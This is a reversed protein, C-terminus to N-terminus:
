CSEGCCGAGVLVGAPIQQIFTSVPATSPVSIPLHSAWLVAVVTKQTRGRGKQPNECQGHIRVSRAKLRGRAVGGTCLFRSCTLLKGELSGVLLYIRVWPIENGLAHSSGPFHLCWFHYHPLPTRPPPLCSGVTFLSSCGPRLGAPGKGTM